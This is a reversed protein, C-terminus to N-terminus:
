SWSEASPILTLSADIRLPPSSLSLSSLAFSTSFLSSSSVPSSCGTSPLGLARLVSSSSSCSNYSSSSSNYDQLHVPVLTFYFKTLIYRLNIIYKRKFQIYYGKHKISHADPNNEAPKAGALM